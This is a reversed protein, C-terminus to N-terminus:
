GPQGPGPLRPVPSRCAVAPLRGPPIMPGPPSPECGTASKDPRSVASARTMWIPAARLPGSPKRWGSSVSASCSTARAPSRSRSDGLWVTATSAPPVPLPLDDSNLWSAPASKEATPTVRGNVLSGCAQTHPM